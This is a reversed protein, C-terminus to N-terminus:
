WEWPLKTLDITKIPKGATDYETRSKENGDPGYESSEWTTGDKRYTTARKKEGDPGHEFVKLTGHKNTITTKAPKGDAGHETVSRDLGAAKITRSVRGSPGYEIKTSKGDLMTTMSTVKGDAGYEHSVTNGNSDATSSEKLSGDPRYHTVAKRGGPLSETVTKGEKTVRTTRSETGDAGYDTSLSDGDAKVSTVKTRKGDAGFETTQTAGNKSVSSHKTRNGGAGYETTSESGDKGWFTERTKKGDPGYDTSSRRGDRGFFSEKTKKGDPAFDTMITGDLDPLVSERRETVTKSGDDKVDVLRAPGFVIGGAASGREGSDISPKRDDTAPAMSKPKSESAGGKTDLPEAKKGTIGGTMGPTDFPRALVEADASGAATDVPPVNSPSSATSDFFDLRPLTCGRAGLTSHSDPKYGPTWLSAAIDEWGQEGQDAGDPIRSYELFASEQPM